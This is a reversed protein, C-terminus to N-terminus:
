FLRAIYAFLPALALAPLLNAPKLDRIRLLKFALAILIAGGAADLETLEPIKNLTATTSPGGSLFTAALAISGQYVFVVGASFLVGPGLGAALAISSVGDLVSKLGLLEWQGYLGDRLAGIIAVPGVCFLITATLFGEAVLDNAQRSMRQRLAQGIRSLQDEIGFWTGLEGGILLSLLLILIENTKIALKAGLVLTVLGIAITATHAVWQPLKRGSALGITSGILIAAVNVLTGIMSFM